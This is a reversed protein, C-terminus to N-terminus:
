WSIVIEYWDAGGFDGDDIRVALTENNISTPFQEISVTGRGVRKTLQIKQPDRTKFAPKLGAFETSVKDNWQPTWAQGNVYITKGPLSFTDHELWLKNGSVKVVDSGVIFARVTLQQRIGCGSAFSAVLAVASLFGVVNSKLLNIKM